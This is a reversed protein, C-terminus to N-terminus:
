QKYERVSPVYLWKTSSNSFLDLSAIHGYSVSTGALHM